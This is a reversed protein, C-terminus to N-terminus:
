LRVTVTLDRGPLSGAATPVATIDLSLLGGAALAPLGFGNVVPSSVTTDAAITLTCYVTSGVRLQLTVDGLHPAENVTAVIDRAALATEVTLPPAADTQVALYGEVQISMQGGSLTRLGQDATGGYSVGLGPGDGITNTMFLEAAGVRVDPQFLSYSFSGSAPSGFFGRVFPVITLSRKLHYVLATTAAHAAATSGHSGRLVTYVTGGSATTTIELIEGEIQIFGNVTGPGAANLTLTTDTATIGAVLSFTTPSALEDWYWLTLTGAIITHANTLDTFGVDVLEITGQGALNLGFVPQPPVDTDTGGSSGGGIQWRTV